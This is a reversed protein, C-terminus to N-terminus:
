VTLLLLPLRLPLRRLLRLLPDAAGAIRRARGKRPVGRGQGLGLGRAVGCQRRSELTGSVGMVVAVVLNKVTRMTEEWM